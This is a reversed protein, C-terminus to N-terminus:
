VFKFTHSIPCSNRVFFIGSGLFSVFSSSFSWESEPRTTIRSPFNQHTHPITLHARTYRFPSFCVPHIELWREGLHLTPVCLFPNSGQPTDQCVFDKSLAVPYSIDGPFCVCVCMHIYAPPLNNKDVFHTWSGVQSIYSGMRHTNPTPISLALHFSKQFFLQYGM